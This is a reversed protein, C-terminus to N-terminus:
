ALHWRVDGGACLSQIRLALDNVGFSDIGSWNREIRDHLRDGPMSGAVIDRSRPHVALHRIALAMMFEEFALADIEIRDSGAEVAVTLSRMWRDGAEELLGTEPKMINPLGM